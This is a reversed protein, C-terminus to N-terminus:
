MVLLNNIPCLTDFCFDNRGYFFMIITDNLTPLTTISTLVNRWFRYVELPKHIKNCPMIESGSAVDYLIKDMLTFM